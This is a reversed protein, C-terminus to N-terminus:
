LLTDDFQSLNQVHCVSPQVTVNAPKDFAILMQINFLSEKLHKSDFGKIYNIMSFRTRKACSDDNDYIKSCQNYGSSPYHVTNSYWKHILNESCGSPTFCPHSSTIKFLKMLDPDIQDVCERVLSLAKLKFTNLIACPSEREISHDLYKISVIRIKVDIIFRVFPGNQEINIIINNNKFEKNFRCADDIRYDTDMIYNSDENFSSSHVPTSTVINLLLFIAILDLYLM